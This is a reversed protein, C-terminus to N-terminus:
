KKLNHKSPLYNRRSWMGYSTMTSASTTMSWFMDCVSFGPGLFRRTVPAFIRRYSNAAEGLIQLHHIIYTRILEDELFREKGIGAYKEVNAIAEIMDLLRSRDDRM